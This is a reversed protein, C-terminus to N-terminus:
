EIEVDIASSNENAADYLEKKRALLQAKFDDEVKHTIELKDNRNPNATYQMFAKGANIRNKMDEDKSMATEFFMDCVKTKKAIWKNYWHKEAAVLLAQAYKSREIQNIEKKINAEVVSDKGGARELARKYRDPYVAKLAEKKSSGSLQMDIYDAVNQKSESGIPCKPLEKLEAKTIGM